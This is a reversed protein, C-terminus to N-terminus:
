GGTGRSEIQEEESARNRKVRGTGGCEGQEEERGRNRREEGMEKFYSPTLGTYQRFQRSLHAVSSFNFRFSIDALKLSTYVLMEKVKEIRYDIIYRELTKKELLTFLASIGDYDRGLQHAVLDSFRFHDPFDYNGSYVEAVLEKVQRVAKVKKDELLEFGLPRLREEIRALETVTNATLATVEGLEVKITSFGLQDLESKVASICRQCVMGKIFFRSVQQMAQSKSCCLKCVAKFQNNCKHLYNKYLEQICEQKMRIFGTM